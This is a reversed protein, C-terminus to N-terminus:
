KSKAAGVAFAETMQSRESNHICVFLAKHLLEPLDHETIEDKDM